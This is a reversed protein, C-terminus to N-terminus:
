GRPSRLPSDVGAPSAQQGSITLQQDAACRLLKEGPQQSRVEMYLCGKRKKSLVREDATDLSLELLSQKACMQRCAATPLKM